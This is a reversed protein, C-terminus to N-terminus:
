AEPAQPVPAHEEARRVLRRRANSVSATGWVTAGCGDARATASRESRASSAFIGPETMTLRIAYASIATADCKREVVYLLEARSAYEIRGPCRHISQGPRMM